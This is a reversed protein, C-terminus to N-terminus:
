ETERHVRGLDHVRLISLIIIFPHKKLGSFKNM